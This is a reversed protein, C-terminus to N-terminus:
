ILVNLMSKDFVNQVMNLDFSDMPRIPNNKDLRGMVYNLRLEDNDFLPKRNEIM